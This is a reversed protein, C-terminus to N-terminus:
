APVIRSLAPRELEVRAAFREPVNEPGPFIVAFPPVSWSEPTEGLVWLPSVVTLAPVSWSLLAAATLAMAPSRRM